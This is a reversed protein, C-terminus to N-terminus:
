GNLVSDSGKNFTGTGANTYFVNNVTDYLGIVNDSKRYCPVYNRVLDGDSWMKLSQIKGKLYYGGSRHGFALVNTSSTSAKALTSVIDNGVPDEITTVLNDGTNDHTIKYLSNVNLTAIKTKAIGGVRVYYDGNSDSWIENNTDTVDNFGFMNNYNYHETLTYLYEIKWQSNKWLPYNTNIYQTGTLEIDTVYQYTSPLGVVLQATEVGGSTTKNVVFGSPVDTPLTGIISFNTNQKTISKPGKLIGDYYNFVSNIYSVGSYYSGSTQTSMITPVTPNLEGDNDGVTITCANAFIGHRGSKVTGGTVTVNGHTCWIGHANGDSGTSTIDGGSVNVTGENYVGAKKINSNITGNSINLTSINYIGGSITGGSITLISTGNNSITYNDNNNSSLTGGSVQINGHRSWIAYSKNSAIIGGSISVVPTSLNDGLYNMIANGDSEIAGSSMVVRGLSHSVLVGSNIDIGLSSGSDISGGVINLLGNTSVVYNYQDTGNGSIDNYNYLSANTNLITTASTTNFLVFSFLSSSTQFINLINLSSTSNLTLTGRNIILASDDSRCPEDSDPVATGSGKINGGTESAGNYIDLGGNNFISNAGMDITHGQLDLKVGNKGSVLSASSTETSNNEVEITQNSRVASLAYELSKYWINTDINHYVDFYTDSSSMLTVTETNESIQAIALYSTPTASVKSIGYGAGRKSTVKGDYFNFTGSSGVNVGYYEGSTADSNVVPTITSPTGGNTGMTLTGSGSINIGNNKGTVTGNTIIVNGNSTQIGNTGGSVTGGSIKVKGAAYNYIGYSRGSTITGGSINVAPTTDSTSTGSVNYIAYGDAAIEGSSMSIRANANSLRVGYNYGTNTFDCDLTAGSINLIGSNNILTRGASAASTNGYTITTKGNLTVTKSAANIIVRANVNSSTNQIIIENRADTANTTLTGNNYIVGYSSSTSAGQLIGGSASSYVDLGGANSIYYTGLNVTKGNLDLKVGTKSSALTPNSTEVGSSTLAQITQNSAVASLAASLTEYFNNTDVNLYNVSDSVLIATETSESTSKYVHYGTPLNNPTGYIAYGTGWESIVKGDYFNFTGSSGKNVGYYHYDGPVSVFNTRIIPSNTLVNEDNSGLTFTGAGTIEICNYDETSTISGGTVTASGTSLLIGGAGTVIGDSMTITGSAGNIAYNTSSTVEADNSISITGAVRNIIATSRGYVKGGSISINGTSYNYIAVNNNGSITGGSITLKGTTNNYIGYDSNSTVTGSSISIAPTTTGTGSANYIAYGSSTISGSTMNVRGNAGNINIGRNYTTSGGTTLTAGSINLIGATNILYRYSSTSSHNNNFTLTTNTNLTVTKSAADTIVRANVNNSTNRIIIANTTDTANTTLTGNNYIVGYSSSTNAGQLIGGSTSSYVDLGGANSIYYTGLNVTNGNLDLKVGTKSSALTPNSTEVGNSTLAKITQNSTVSSFADALTEYNVGTNTNIYNNDGPLLVASEINNSTSKHVTYGEPVNNVNGSISYGAGRTSTVKGDYFNFTGGGNKVGYYAGTTATTGVTPSTQSPTGGTNEGLTLTGGSAVTIGYSTGIVFGDIITVEGTGGYIGNMTRGTVETRSGSVNIIGAGLNYIGYNGTVTGGSVHITGGANNYIGYTGTGTLEGDTVDILGTSGNYVAGTTGQITGGTIIVYGTNNNYIAYGASSIVSGGMISIAPRITGTGSPNYIAYGSSNITGSDMVVMASAGNINIGRNYATSGGTALTAGSINLKGTTNILYRYSSTSSHTTSFTITTNKNLTVIKSASNYIVRANVNNSTNQIIIENSADTANTTLTGGNYIVGFSSSTNAGIVRGSGTSSYVDLGGANSIYYTGLNVTNGNLDLKVGTKSSALIPNATEVGNSTLAQITQNAAVVTFADALTTYTELTNVNIYNSSDSVLVATEVGDITSKYVSYGIPVLYNDSSIAYGTGSDSAIRGDYFNFKGNGGKNVGYGGTNTGSAHIVPIEPTIVEGDDAGLTFTGSNSIYICDGGTSTVIGGNVTANGTTLVIGREGSISGDTVTVTGSAGVIGDGSDSQITTSYGSVNIIGNAENVLGNNTVNVTGGLVNITGTSYNYVGSNGQITGGSITLTGTNNNYIGYDGNSTVTGSSISIAPTTTGTGSANHIAYGSSTISGSTMNVRGNAGNINIGRNYTTSGGTTLTAGSINLIGATNILYRYSSTSSHNNNFTLTTNTNLTVTKSAADTIVRANVNNSTNRIIIANTTDTANTTLTGNNYIVGYSASTNAGQLIGGSASSYVDLGGANSIYYTGLNVTKGNLDLKVGTKSSALTPNAMEVGDSTLAQITQNAAVASFAAALTEYQVGTNVNKYNGNAVTVVYTKNSASNYNTTNSPNFKVTITSSGAAVGTITETTVVGASNNANSITTDTPSVTAKATNGSTVNLTGNVSTNTGSKVTATFTKTSGVFLSGSTASLTITPTAKPLYCKFEKTGTSNDSWRYGSALSATITYGNANVNTQSYGSLTYGTGSTATTLTQASGTYAFSSYDSGCETLETCKCLSNTPITASKTVTATLTMSANNYNTTDTPAFSVTITSTGDSVGTVTETKATNAAVNSNTEPSITAVTTTGSTNTFTGAVNAKETFTVSGGQVVTVNTKNLIIGPTAKPLYCKFKWTGVSGDDSWAYGDELSATITYGNPNVNTQSYGSLTYGTGSTETILTQAGGTYAFNSYSPGCTTLGTCKCLDNTPAVVNRLWKAYFTKNGTESTGINTVVNGSCASTSYYGGFTYDDKTPTDLTAGTGYVYSAPYGSDHVGSFTTDDCDKYTISYSNISYQAYVTKDTTSTIVWQKSANTWDRVTVGTLAPPSANTALKSGSSSETYWGNWTWGTKSATPMNSTTTGTAATYLTGNGYEAYLTTTGSATGGNHTANFTIKVRQLKMETASAAASAVTSSTSTGDSAYVRCHYYRKGYFANKAVSTTSTTSANGLWTITGTATSSYGFEYYKSTGSAYTTTTACTLTTAQFNYVKTTGGTITPTAPNNITYQAHLTTNSSPYYTAGGNGVKTGGTEATYWGSFSYGNKTPTPLTVSPETWDTYLNVTDSSTLNLVNAGNYYYLGVDDYTGKILIPRFKISANVEKPITIFSRAMWSANSFDSASTTNIYTIGVPLNNVVQAKNTIQSINSGSTSALNYNANGGTVSKEKVDLIYVYNTSTTVNSNLGLFFNAYANATGSTNDKSSTLTGDSNKTTNSLSIINYYRILNPNGVTWGLFTSDGTSSSSSNGGTAGHYDYTVTATCSFGNNSLAKSTDYTHSSNSMSGGATYDCANNYKVSYTNATAGGSIVAETASAEYSSGSATMNTSGHKLTVTGHYGTNLVAKAWIPTGHLVVVTNSGTLATGGSETTSDYKVTLTTGTGQTRSITYAKISGKGSSINGSSDQVYVYYTGASSVDYSTSTTWGSASADTPATSSTSIYYKNGATANYTFTNYDSKTVTPTASYTWNATLTVTGASTTILNNFYTVTGTGKVKTSANSWSTDASSSGYKATSTTLTSATWGAFTYGSCSPHAISWATGYTASKDAYTTTNLTCNSNGSAYKVTYTNITAGGSIVAETASAEYSSGSATMNTSGHKLTVTGHYGTNLVAKAWIPTGHLVVVTNSGTLATGGSETTSDYKVTLTTGTGQTRSITYAKISGKGSSINGSSDQVYVYYTGASSVDYSTSTTWGSASADTPATSSTSIYYKNGATANYTFTNYDSKTVTPTASYSATATIKSAAGVVATTSHSTGASTGQKANGFTVTGSNKTWVTANAAFQYGTAASAAIAHEFTQAVAVTGNNAISTGNVTVSTHSTGITLTYYNITKTSDSAVVLNVGSNVLTTLHNADKSIYINYTGATVSSWSVESKDSSKTAASYAYKQTGNQYLAVNIGPNDTRWQNGDKDIIVKVANAVTVSGSTVSTNGLNMSNKIKNSTLTITTTGNSSAGEVGITYKYGNTVTSKSVSKITINTNSATFDTATLNSTTIQSEPDTCTLEISSTQGDGITVPNWSGYTCTPGTSDVTNVTIEKSVTKGNADKFWVYYTTASTATYNLTYINSQDATPITQWNTPTANTTTVAYNTIKYKSDVATASINQNNASIRTITLTDEVGEVQDIQTWVVTDLTEGSLLESPNESADIWIWVTYKKVEQTVEIGPYLTLVDGDNTGVFNGKALVSGVNTSDGSTVVWKLAPSTKMNPGISNIDMMITAVLDVNAAEATKSVAITSHIGQTYTNSVQFEGVFASEGEDYIIYEQLDKSTNFVVKKTTNSNWSWYAYTGGTVLLGLFLVAIAMIIANKKNM